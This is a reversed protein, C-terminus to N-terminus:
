VDKWRERLPLISGGFKTILDLANKIAPHSILELAECDFKPCDTMSLSYTLELNYDDGM